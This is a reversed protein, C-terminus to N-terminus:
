VELKLKPSMDRYWQYIAIIDDRSNPGRPVRCLPHNLGANPAFFRIWSIHTEFKSTHQNKSPTPFLSPISPIVQRRIATLQVEPENAATILNVVEKIERVPNQM